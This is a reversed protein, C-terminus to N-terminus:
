NSPLMKRLKMIRLGGVASATVTSINSDLKIEAFIEIKGAVNLLM